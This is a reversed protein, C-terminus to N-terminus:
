EDGWSQDSTYIQQPMGVLQVDFKLSAELRSSANHIRFSIEWGNDLSALLTNTGKKTVERLRAPMALRPVRIQPKINGAPKGLDGRLNFGQIRVMREADRKIIKYFDYRGLLYQVLRSPVQDDQEALWLLETQFADLVRAYFVHKDPVDDWLTLGECDILDRIRGFIQGAQDMYQDSCPVGVWRKGFDIRGSLRSHKLAAHNNKASFGVVWDDGMDSKQVVLVDRVDGKQGVTDQQVHIRTSASGGLMPELRMMHRTAAQAAMVYNDQEDRTMAAFARATVDYAEDKILVSKQVKIEEHLAEAMAFEFAKGTSTQRGM